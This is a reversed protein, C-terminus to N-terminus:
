IACKPCSNWLLSATNETEPPVLYQNTGSNNTNAKIIQNLHHSGPKEMKERYSTLIKYPSVKKNNYIKILIYKNYPTNTTVTGILNIKHM